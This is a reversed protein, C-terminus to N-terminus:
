LKARYLMFLITIWLIVGGFFVHSQLLSPVTQPNVINVAILLYSIFLAVFYKQSLNANVVTYVAVYFPLLLLIFHHQWSFTNILVSIVLLSAIELNIRISTKKKIRLILILNIALLFIPIITRLVGRLSPDSVSRMLLGSFSQNYYDGKWSRLLDPLITQFFHVQTEFSVFYFTVGFLGTLAFMSATLLKWKRLYLLYPLVLLPYFKLLFSFTLAIGASVYKNTNLFYWFLTTFFLIINNIQGMGLTFKLPFFIFVLSLLLLSTKSFFAKKYVKNILLISGIVCGLSIVTWIKTAVTYSLLSIPIYFFMVFPPYVQPTFYNSDPLYPNERQLLHQAGYYNVLFDPYNPLLFARLLLVFSVITFLVILVTFINELHFRKKYKSVLSM